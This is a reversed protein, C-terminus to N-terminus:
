WYLWIYKENQSLEVTYGKIRFYEIVDELPKGYWGSSSFSFEREDKKAIHDDLDKFITKLKSSHVSEMRNTFEEVYRNYQENRIQEADKFM